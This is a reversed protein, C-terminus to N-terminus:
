GLFVVPLLMRAFLRDVYQFPNDYEKFLVDKKDEDEGETIVQYDVTNEATIFYHLAKGADEGEKTTYVTSIISDSDGTQEIHFSTEGFQVKITNNLISDEGGSKNVLTVKASGTVTMPKKLEDYMDDFTKPAPPETPKATETPKAAETPKVTESPKASETNVTEGCGVLGFLSLLALTIIKKKM